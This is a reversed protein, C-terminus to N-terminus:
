DIRVRYLLVHNVQRKPIGAGRAMRGDKFRSPSSHSGFLFGGFVKAVMTLNTKKQRGALVFICFDAKSQFDNAKAGFALASM